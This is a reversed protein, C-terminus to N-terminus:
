RSRQTTEFAKGFQQRRNRLIVLDIVEGCQVCRRALCDLHGAHGTFDFCQEIVMLGECRSCKMANAYARLAARSETMPDKTQFAAATAMIAEGM